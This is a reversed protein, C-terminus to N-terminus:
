PTVGVEVIMDIRVVGHTTLGDPDDLVRTMGVRCVVAVYPEDMVLEAEHVAGRVAGIIRKAEIVGMNRSWVDIQVTGEEASICEADATVWDEPGFTIYPFTPVPPVRDYIRGDVLGVLSADAKLAALIAKQAAASVSM